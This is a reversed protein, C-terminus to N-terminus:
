GPDIRTISPNCAAMLLSSAAARRNMTPNLQHGVGRWGQFPPSRESWIDPFEPKHLDGTPGDLTRDVSGVVPRHPFGLGDIRDGALM